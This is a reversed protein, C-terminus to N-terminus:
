MLQEKSNTGRDWGEGKQAKKGKGKRERRKSEKEKREREKEREIERNRKRVKQGLFYMIYIKQATAPMSITLM